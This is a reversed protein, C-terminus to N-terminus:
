VSVKTKARLLVLLSELNIVNNNLTINVDFAHIQLSFLNRLCYLCRPLSTTLKLKDKFDRRKDM